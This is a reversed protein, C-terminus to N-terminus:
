LDYESNKHLASDLNSNSTSDSTSYFTKLELFGNEWNCFQSRARGIHSLTLKVTCFIACSKSLLDRMKSRCPTYDRHLVDDKFSTDRLFSSIYRVAVKYKVARQTKDSLKATWTSSIRTSLTFHASVPSRAHLCQPKAVSSSRRSLPSSISPIIYLLNVVLSGSTVSM